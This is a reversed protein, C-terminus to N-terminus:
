QGSIQANCATAAAQLKTQNTALQMKEAIPLPALQAVVCTCYKEAQEPTAGHTTASPVCSDHTSKAFQTNFQQGAASNDSPMGCAGLALAAGIGVASGALRNVFDLM